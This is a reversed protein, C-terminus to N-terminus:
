RACRRAPRTPAICAPWRCRANARSATTSPSSAAATSAGRCRTDREQLRHRLRQVRHLPRRRLSIEYSGNDLRRVGGHGPLAHGQTRAHRDGPRLRLHHDHERERRARDSRHGASVQPAPRRGAFWGAFHFPCWTVGKGVRETVLAKMRCAKGHAMEPGSVWVWDGDTIGRTPPTRLISRSSCTRSCNPSGSTPARRRAAAKTSSWAAPPAPDAPLQKAVDKDVAAKQVTFGINRCASSCARRAADSVQRGSRAAAHLDARPAGPGPRAPELANARAKGNGYPICGHTSRSASSAARCISRGPCATPNDRRRHREIM